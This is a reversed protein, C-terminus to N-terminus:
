LWDIYLYGLYGTPLKVMGWASKFKRGVALTILQPDCYFRSQIETFDMIKIDPTAKDVHYM